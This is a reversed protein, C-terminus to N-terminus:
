SASNRSPYTRRSRERVPPTPTRHQRQPHGCYPRRRVSNVSMASGTTAGSGATGVTARRPLGTAARGERPRRSRTSVCQFFGDVQGRGRTRTRTSMVATPQLPIQVESRDSPGPRDRPGGTRAASALRPRLRRRTAPPEPLRATAPTRAGSRMAPRGRAAPAM